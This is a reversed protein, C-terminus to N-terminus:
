RGNPEPLWRTFDTKLSTSRSRESGRSGLWGPKRLEVMAEDRSDVMGHAVVGRVPPLNILGWHWRVATGSMEKLAGAHVFYNKLGDSLPLAPKLILPAYPM